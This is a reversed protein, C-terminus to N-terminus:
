DVTALVPESVDFLLEKIIHSIMFTSPFERTEECHNNQKGYIIIYLFGDCTLGPLYYYM